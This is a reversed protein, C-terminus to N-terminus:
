RVFFEVPVTIEITAGGVHQPPKPFPAARKITALAAKDLQASGSSRALSSELLRGQRDMRFRVYATGEEGKARARVPYRRYKELHALLRSQWTVKADSAMRAASPAEQTKPATTEPVLDVATVPQVPPPAPQEHVPPLTPRPLEVVPREQRDPLQEKQEVQEPGEPVAKEPQPPAAPIDFTTVPQAPEVVILEDYNWKLLLGGAAAAHVAITLTLALSRGGGSTGHYGGREVPM